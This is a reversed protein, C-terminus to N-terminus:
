YAPSLLIEPEYFRGLNEPYRWFEPSITPIPAKQFIKAAVDLHRPVFPALSDRSIVAL